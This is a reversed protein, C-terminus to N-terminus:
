AIRESMAGELCEQARLRGNALPEGELQLTLAHRGGPKETSTTRVVAPPESSSFVSRRRSPQLLAFAVSTVPVSAARPNTDRRRAGSSRRTTTISRSGIPRESTSRSNGAWESRTM